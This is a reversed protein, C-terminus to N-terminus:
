WLSYFYNDSYRDLFVEEGDDDIRSEEIDREDEDDDTKIEETDREDDFVNSDENNGETWLNNGMEEKDDFEKVHSEDLRYAPPEKTGYMVMKVNLLAGSNRKGVEGEDEVWFIWTGAPNEGWTHVSMLPWEDEVWFIWTGAPNEGWTHVSMLPWDFFNSRTWDKKRPSLLRTVTGSPSKAFASIAGRHTYDMTFVFIVHELYNIEKDQGQCGDTDIEVQVERGTKLERPFADRQGIARVHAECKNQKPVTHWHRSRNVMDLADIMGFGFSLSVHFGAANTYWDKTHRRLPKPKSTVAILHQVDRWTLKPNAELTLAIIGSVLPASASTGSHSNTCGNRLDTTYVKKENRWGSSYATTLTSSCREGYWPYLYHETASSVSITYISGAYGDCNCNDGKIGGNGSALVYIAGKGDRGKEVGKVMAGNTLRNPGDLTVGNDLPGWSLSFIHIHDLNHSLAAGEMWDTVPGDLLRIGGISAKYAMGVGCKSNNAVMSVEGACRTGHRQTNKKDYRPMPDDDDGNLDTSAKPDYNPKLDPHTHELGDDVITVVVGRGTINQAWVDQVNSMFKGKGEGVMYWQDPFMPDNFHLSNRYQQGNHMDRKQRPRAVQQEAWRVRTDETLRRTHDLGSRKSRYPLDVHRLIYHNEFNPMPRILEFGYRKIIDRVQVEEGDIHAVWQNTFHSESLILGTQVLVSIVFLVGYKRNM